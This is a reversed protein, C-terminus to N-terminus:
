KQRGNIDYFAILLVKYRLFVPHTQKAWLEWVPGGPLKAISPMFESTRYTYTFVLNAYIIKRTKSLKVLSRDSPSLSVVYGIITFRQRSPHIDSIGRSGRRPYITLPIYTFTFVYKDKNLVENVAELFSEETITEMDVHAGIKHYVYQEVNNWQDAFMPIGILPVGATISEDTSQLGGQTIFLKVKPHEPFIFSPFDFDFYIIWNLYSFGTQGSAFTSAYPGNQKYTIRSSSSHGLLSSM